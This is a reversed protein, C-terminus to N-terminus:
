NKKSAHKSEHAEKDTRTFYLKKQRIHNHRKKKNKVKLINQKHVEERNNGYWNSPDTLNTTDATALYKLTIHVLASALFSIGGAFLVHHRHSVLLSERM